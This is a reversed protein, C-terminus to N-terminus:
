TRSDVCVSHKGEYGNGTSGKKGEASWYVGRMVGMVVSKGVLICQM